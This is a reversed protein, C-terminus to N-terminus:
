QSKDPALCWEVGCGLQLLQALLLWQQLELVEEEQLVEEVKLVAM